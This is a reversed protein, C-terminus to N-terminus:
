RARAYVCGMSCYAGVNRGRKEGSKMAKLTILFTKGCDLRQCIREVAKERVGTTPHILFLGDAFKLDHGRRLNCSHCSPVLNEPDNNLGEGDVHDVILCGEGTSEGPRWEVMTGCGWHCFHWGPGIKDYLVVRHEPIRGDATVLPHHRRKVYKYRRM